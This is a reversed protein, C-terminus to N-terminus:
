IDRSDNERNLEEQLIQKLSALSNYFCTKGLGIEKAAEAITDHQMIADLFYRYYDKEDDGTKSDIYSKAIRRLDQRPIDLGEKRPKVKTIDETFVYKIQYDENTTKRYKSANRAIIYFYSVPDNIRNGKEEYEWIKLWTDQFLERWDRGALKKATKKCKECNAIKDSARLTETLFSPRPYGLLFGRRYDSLDSIRM